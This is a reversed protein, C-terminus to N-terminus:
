LIHNLVDFSSGMAGCIKGYYVHMAASSLNHIIIRNGVVCMIALIYGPCTRYTMNSYPAIHKKKLFYIIAINIRVSRPFRVLFVCM